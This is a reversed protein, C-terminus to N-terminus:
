CALEFIKNEDKIISSPILESNRNNIRAYNFMSQWSFWKHSLDVLELANYNILETNIEKIKSISEDIQAILENDINDFCSENISSINNIILKKTDITFHTLLNLSNYIDSEVHGYPMAYFKNFTELLRNNNSNVAITFFHLKIVKLKNLDNRQNFQEYNTIGNESIYWNCLKFLVYEFAIIKNKIENEM